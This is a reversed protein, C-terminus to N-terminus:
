IDSMSRETRYIRHNSDLLIMLHLPVSVSSVPPCVISQYEARCVWCPVLTISQDNSTDFYERMAINKTDYNLTNHSPQLQHLTESCAIWQESVDEGIGQYHVANRHLEKYEDNLHITYKEELLKSTTLTLDVKLISGILDKRRIIQSGHLQLTLDPMALFSKSLATITVQVSCDMKKSPYWGDTENTITTSQLNPACFDTYFREILSFEGSNIVNTIMRGYERRIDRKLIRPLANVPVYYQKQRIRRKKTPLIVEQTTTQSPSTISFIATNIEENTEGIERKKGSKTGENNDIILLDDDNNFDLYFEEKWFPLVLKSSIL